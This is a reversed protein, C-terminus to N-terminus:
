NLLLRKYIKKNIDDINNKTPQRSRLKPNRPNKL